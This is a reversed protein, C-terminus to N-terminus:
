VRVLLNLNGYFAGPSTEAGKQQLCGAQGSKWGVADLRLRLCELGQRGPWPGCFNSSESVNDLIDPNPLFAGAQIPTHDGSRQHGTGSIAPINGSTLQSNKL